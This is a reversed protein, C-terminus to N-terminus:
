LEPTIDGSRFLYVNLIEARDVMTAGDRTLPSAVVAGEAFEM